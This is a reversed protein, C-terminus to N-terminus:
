GRDELLAWLRDRAADLPANVRVREDFDDRWVLADGFGGAGQHMSRYVSAMDRLADSDSLEADAAPALAARLGRTWNREGDAELAAVMYELLGRARLRTVHLDDPNM